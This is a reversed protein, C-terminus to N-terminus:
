WGALVPEGALWDNALHHPVLWDLPWAVAQGDRVSGIVHAEPDMQVADAPIQQPDDVAVLVKGAHNAGNLPALGLTLLLINRRGPTPKLRYALTALSIAATSILLRNRRQFYLFGIGLRPFATILQFFFIALVSLKLALGALLASLLNIGM